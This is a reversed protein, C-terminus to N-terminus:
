ENEIGRNKNFESLTTNTLSMYYIDDENIKYSEIEKVLFNMQMYLINEKHALEKIKNEMKLAKPRLRNKKIIHSTKLEKKVRFEINESNVHSMSFNSIHNSTYEEYEKSIIKFELETLNTKHYLKMYKEKIKEIVSDPINDPENTSIGHYFLNHVNFDIGSNFMLIKKHSINDCTYLKQSM